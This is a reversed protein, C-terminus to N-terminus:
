IFFDLLNFVTKEKKPLERNDPSTKLANSIKQSGYPVVDFETLKSNLITESILTENEPTMECTLHETHFECINHNKRIYMCLDRLEYDNLKYRTPEYGGTYDNYQSFDFFYVNVITNPHEITDFLDKLFSIRFHNIDYARIVKRKGLMM